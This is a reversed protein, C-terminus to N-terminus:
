NSNENIWKRFERSYLNKNNNEVGRAKCYSNFLVNYYKNIIDDKM